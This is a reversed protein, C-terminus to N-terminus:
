EHGYDIVEAPKEIGLSAFLGGGIGSSDTYIGVSLNYLDFTMNVAM